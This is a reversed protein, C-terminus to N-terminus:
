EVVRVVRVVGHPADENGGDGREDEGGRDEEREGDRGRSLARAEARLYGRFFELCGLQGPAVGAPVVQLVIPRRANIRGAAGAPALPDRYLNLWQHRSALVAWNWVFLFLAPESTAELWAPTAKNRPVHLFQDTRAAGAALRGSSIVFFEGEALSKIQSFHIYCHASSWTMCSTTAFFSCSRFLECNSVTEPVVKM